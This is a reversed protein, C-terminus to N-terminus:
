CEEETIFTIANGKMGARGTRGVRHVYDEVHDPCAYNVVLRIHSIDLGRACVSTAVMINRVGNKFDSIFGERDIQDQGGHLVIIGFGVKYLEKFLFDAETQKDVFILVSGKDQWENLLELIRMIKNEEALVEVTQEINQCAQGRNGVVIEVPRQLISKALSEISRPFTASFMVTQREERCNSLMVKIQPEFGMDLMRDAEDLVIYSVRRLNTIKGNSMILIDRM